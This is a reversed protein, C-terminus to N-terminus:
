AISGYLFVPFPLKTLLTNTKLPFSPTSLIHPAEPTVPSAGTMIPTTILFQEDQFECLWVNIKHPKGRTEQSKQFPAPLLSLSDYPWGERGSKEKELDQITEQTKQSSNMIPLIGKVRLACYQMGEILFHQSWAHHTVFFIAALTEGSGRVSLM